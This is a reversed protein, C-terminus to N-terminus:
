SLASRPLDYHPEPQTPIITHLFPRIKLFVLTPLASCVCPMPAVRVIPMTLLIWSSPAISCIPSVPMLVYNIRIEHADIAIEIASM